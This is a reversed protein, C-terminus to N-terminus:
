KKKKGPKEIKIDKLKGDPLHGYKIQGNVFDVFQKEADKESKASMPKTVMKKKGSKLTLIGSADFVDENYPKGIPGEGKGKGLGKGKGKSKKKGGPCEVEELYMDLRDVINM